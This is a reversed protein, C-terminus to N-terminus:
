RRLGPPPPESPHLGHPGRHHEGVVRLDRGTGLYGCRRLAGIAFNVGELWLGAALCMSAADGAVLMGDTALRPMARYGGEPVLHASYEKLEAGRLYPAIAPHAKAGAVLEEPRIKAEALGPQAPGGSGASPATVGVREALERLVAPADAVIGLDAMATMPRSPDTNVSVVHEPAGIQRAGDAVILAKARSIELRERMAGPVGGSVVAHPAGIRACALMTVVVEPDDAPL